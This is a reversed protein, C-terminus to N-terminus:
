KIMSKDPKAWTFSWVASWIKLSLWKSFNVPVSNIMVPMLGSNAMFIFLSSALKEDSFVYELTFSATFTSGIIYFIGSM